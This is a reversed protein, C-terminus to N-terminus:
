YEDTYIPDYFVEAKMQKKIAGYGNFNASNEAGMNFFDKWHRFSLSQSSIIKKLKGQKNFVKVQYFM